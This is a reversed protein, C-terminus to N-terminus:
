YTFEIKSFRKINSGRINPQYKFNYNQPQVKTTLITKLCQTSIPNWVTSIRGNILAYPGAFWIRPTVFPIIGANFVGESQVIAHATYYGRWVKNTVNWHNWLMARTGLYLLLFNCVKIEMRVNLNCKCDVFLSSDRCALKIEGIM